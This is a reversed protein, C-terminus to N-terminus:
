ESCTKNRIHGNQACCEPSGYQKNSAQPESIHNSNCIRTTYAMANRFLLTGNVLDSLTMPLRVAPMRSAVRRQQCCQNTASSRTRVLVSCSGLPRLICVSRRRSASSKFCGSIQYRHVYKNPIQTTFGDSPSLVVDRASYKSNAIFKSKEEVPLLRLARCWEEQVRCSQLPVDM